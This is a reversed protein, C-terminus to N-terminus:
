PQKTSRPLVIQTFAELFWDFKLIKDYNHNIQNCINELPKQNLLQMVQLGLLDRKHDDVYINKKFNNFKRM